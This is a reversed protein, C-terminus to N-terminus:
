HITQIKQIFEGILKVEPRESTAILISNVMTYNKNLIEKSNVQIEPNTYEALRISALIHRLCSLVNKNKIKM